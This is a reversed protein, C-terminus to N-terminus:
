GAIGPLAQGTVTRGQNAVWGVVDGADPANARYGGSAEEGVSEAEFVEWLGASELSPDALGDQSWTRVHRLMARAISVM